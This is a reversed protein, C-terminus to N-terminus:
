ETGLLGVGSPNGWLGVFNLKVRRTEKTKGLERDQSEFYSIM